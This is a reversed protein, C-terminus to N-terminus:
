SVHGTWKGGDWWRHDAEGAPDPYWGPRAQTGDGAGVADVLLQDAAPEPSGDSHRATADLASTGGVSSLPPIPAARQVPVPPPLQALRSTTDDAVPAAATAVEQHEAPGAKKKRRGIM